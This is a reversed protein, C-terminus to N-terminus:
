PQGEASAEKSEVHPGNSSSDGAKVASRQKVGCGKEMSSRLAERAASWDITLALRWVTHALFVVNLLLVVVGMINGYVHGPELGNYPLFTLATFSTLLLV